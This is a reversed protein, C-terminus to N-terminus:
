RDNRLIIRKPHAEDTEGPRIIWYIAAGITWLTAASGAAVIIWGMM